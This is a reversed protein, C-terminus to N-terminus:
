FAKQTNGAKGPKRKKWLANNSVPFGSFIKMLKNKSINLGNVKNLARKLPNQINLVCSEFHQEFNDVFGLMSAQFYSKKNNFDFHYKSLM